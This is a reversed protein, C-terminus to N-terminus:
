VIIKLFHYVNQHNEQIKKKKFKKLAPIDSMIMPFIEKSKKNINKSKDM